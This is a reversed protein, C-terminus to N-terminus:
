IFIYIFISDYNENINKSNYKFISSLGKMFDIIFDKNSQITLESLIYLLQNISKNNNHHICGYLRKLITKFSKRQFSSNTLIISLFLPCSGDFLCSPGRIILPEIISYIQIIDDSISTNNSNFSTIIIKNIFLFM